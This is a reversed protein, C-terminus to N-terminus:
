HCGNITSTETQPSGASSWGTLRPLAGSGTWSVSAKLPVAWPRLLPQLHPAPSLFGRAWQGGVGIQTGLSAAWGRPQPSAGAAIGATCLATPASQAPDAGPNPSDWLVVVDPLTDGAAELAM